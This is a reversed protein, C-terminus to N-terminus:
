RRFILYTPGPNNNFDLLPVLFRNITSDYIRAVIGTLVNVVSLASKWEPFYAHSRVPDSCFQVRAHAKLVLKRNWNSGIIRHYLTLTSEVKKIRRHPYYLISFLGTRDSAQKGSHFSTRVIIKHADSSVKPVRGGQGGGILTSHHGM